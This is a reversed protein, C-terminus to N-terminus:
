VVTDWFQNLWPSSLILSPRFVTSLMVQYGEPLILSYPSSRLLSPLFHTCFSPIVPFFLLSTFLSIISPTFLSLFVPASPRELFLQSVLLM